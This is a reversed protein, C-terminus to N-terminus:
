YLEPEQEETNTGANLAAIRNTIRVFDALALQEPRQQFFPEELMGQEPGVLGRLTNRLMKRRQGFTQKVVQRFLADPCGLEGDPKRLLRIVASQVKPPPQFSSKDVTFLRQGTYYAQTLVSIIGYTKSGPPAIIRDAMERQFMGVMEPILQRYHLMQFVIQSSINYPFNGILLFPQGEFVTQLDLRLFDGALIDGHLQPFHQALYAVMDPDAEAVRLKTGPLQLLYQTLKGTGPGVELVRPCDSLLTLSTAIRQAIDERHLFHQGFSKKAKM